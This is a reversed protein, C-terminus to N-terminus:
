PPSPLTNSQGSGHLSAYLVDTQREANAAQTCCNVGSSAGREGRGALPKAAPMIRAGTAHQVMGGKV